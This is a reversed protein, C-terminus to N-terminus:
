HEHSEVAYSQHITYHYSICYIANSLEVVHIIYLLSSQYHLLITKIEAQILPRGYLSKTELGM